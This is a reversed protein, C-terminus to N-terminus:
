KWKVTRGYPAAEQKVHDPLEEGDTIYSRLTAGFGPQGAFRGKGSATEHVLYGVGGDNKGARRVYHGTVLEPAYAPSRYTERM